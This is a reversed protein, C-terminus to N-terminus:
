DLALVVAPSSLDGPTGDSLGLRRLLRGDFHVKDGVVRVLATIDAADDGALDQALIRKRGIPKSFELTLSRFEGFVGFPGPADGVKLTVDCPPMYWARGPQTREQAGIAVAGNPFGAAFVFPKEDGGSVLPLDINRALIAPAGQWVTTKVLERQWTEGANFKWGDRLIEASTRFSGFGSPYPQALRQWRVARVVEDMREKARRAGNFFLDPDGGPRLGHLSHRMVGMTCGLAAAVYVEDEVNLLSHVEPHGAATSLLESVRDLTTSLSLISTVDYTRYVDTHRLIQMRRSDWPQPGFRGDSAWDGNVPMEGHVHELTLPIRAEDRARVLNFDRDGLDIKWYRVGANDCLNELEVDVEGGPTNRCWLAAGRWGLQEIRRNLERLRETSSGKFSPFKTSDLQFTATGGAEWGDDLLLYLDERVRSYLHSAWGSNGFLVEEGMADRALRAGSDGELLAAEISQTGQGFKYNQMAWTCWYNPAGSPKGPVLRHQTTKAKNFAWAFGEASDLVSATVFAALFQRRDMKFTNRKKM